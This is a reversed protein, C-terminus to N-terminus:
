KLYMFAGAVKGSFDTKAGGNRDMSVKGANTLLIHGSTGITLYSTSNIWFRIGSTAGNDLKIGGATEICTRLYNQM